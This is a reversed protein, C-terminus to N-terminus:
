RRRSASSTRWSRRPSGRRKGAGGGATGAPVPHRLKRPSRHPHPATVVAGRHADHHILGERALTAFAERGPTTSTGLLEATEAQRLRTGAKLEGLVIMRRLKQAAVGAKTTPVRAARGLGIEEGRKM